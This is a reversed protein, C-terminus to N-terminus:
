HTSPSFLFYKSMGMEEVAAVVSQVLHVSVDHRVESRNAVVEIDALWDDSPAVAAPAIYLEGLEEGVAAAGVAVGVAM